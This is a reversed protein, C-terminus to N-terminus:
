PKAEARDLRRMLMSAVALYELAEEASDAVTSGHGRPNRLGVIAGMFLFKFGEREDDTNRGTHTTIDLIPNNSSFVASMLSKGSDRVNALNQVRAELAKFAEFVAQSLHGDEFLAGAVASIEPHMGAITVRRAEIVPRPATVRWSAEIHDLTGAGFPSQHHAVHTIVAVRTKGNPLIEEILDGQEVDTTIPFLTKGDLPTAAVETRADAGNPVRRILAVKKNYQLM